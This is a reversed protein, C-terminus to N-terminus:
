ACVREKRLELLRDVLAPVSVCRMAGQVFAVLADAVCSLDEPKGAIRLRDSLVAYLPECEGLLVACLTDVDTEVTVRACASASFSVTTPENDVVLDIARDALASRMSAHAVPHEMALCALTDDVLVAVSM